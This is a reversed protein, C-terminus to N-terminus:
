KENLLEEIHQSYEKTKEPHFGDHVYRINGQRDIIVSTPMASVKYAKAIKGKPDYISPVPAHVRKLFQEARAPKQDLNILIIQFEEQPYRAKLDNM